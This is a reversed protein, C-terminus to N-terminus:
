LGQRLPSFIFVTGLSVAGCVNECVNVRVWVYM